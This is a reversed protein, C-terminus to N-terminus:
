EGSEELFPSLAALLRGTSRVKLLVSDEIYEVSFVSGERHAFAVLDSRSSPIRYSHEEGELLAEMEVVVRDFGEKTKTSIFVSHPYEDALHSRLADDILDTKNLVILYPREAAGVESLVDRSRFLM